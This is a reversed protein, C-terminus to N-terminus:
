VLLLRQPPRHIVLRHESRGGPVSTYVIGNEHFRRFASDAWATTGLASPPKCGAEQQGHPGESAWTSCHGSVLTEPGHVGERPKETPIVAGHRCIQAEARTRVWLPQQTGPGPSWSPVCPVSAEEANCRVHQRCHSPPNQGLGQGRGALRRGGLLVWSEAPSGLVLGALPDRGGHPQQEWGVALFM